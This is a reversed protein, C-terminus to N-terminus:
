LSSKAASIIASCATAVLMVGSTFACARALSEFHNPSFDCFFISPIIYNMGNKNVMFCSPISFIKFESNWLVSRRGEAVEELKSSSNEKYERIEKAELEIM